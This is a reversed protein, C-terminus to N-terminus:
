VKHMMLTSHLFGILDKDMQSQPQNKQSLNKLLSFEKEFQDCMNKIMRKINTTQNRLQLIKLVLETVIPNDEVMDEFSIYQDGKLLTTM